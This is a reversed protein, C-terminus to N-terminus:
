PVPKQGKQGIHKCVKIKGIHFGAILNKLPFHYLADFNFLVFEAKLRFNRCFYCLYFINPNVLDANRIGASGVFLTFFYAPFVAEPSNVTNQFIIQESLYDSGENYDGRARFGFLIIRDVQYGTKEVEETIIKKAIEILGQKKIM